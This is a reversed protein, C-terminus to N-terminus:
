TWSKKAGHVAACWSGRDEVLKQLKSLKVGMADTISDLWTRQGLCNGRPPSRVGAETGGGASPLDLGLVGSEGRTGEALRTKRPEIYEKETTLYEQGSEAPTRFASRHRFTYEQHVRLSLHGGCGGVGRGDQKDRVMENRSGEEAKGETKGLILAKELLDARRM